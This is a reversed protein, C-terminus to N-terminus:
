RILTSIQTRISEATEADVGRGSLLSPLNKLEERFGDFDGQMMQGMYGEINLSSMVDNIQAQDLGYQAFVDQIQKIIGLDGLGSTINQLDIM